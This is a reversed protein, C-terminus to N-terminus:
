IIIKEKLLVKDSSTFKPIYIKRKENTYFYCGGRPGIYIPFSDGGDNLIFSGIINDEPENTQVEFM